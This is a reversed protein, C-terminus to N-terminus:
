PTKELLNTKMGHFTDAMPADRKPRQWLYRCNPNLKSLYSQFSTVPCNSNEALAYMRGQQSQEDDNKGDGQHNQTKLDAISVYKMGRSDHEVHFHIPEFERLNERGRYCLHLM